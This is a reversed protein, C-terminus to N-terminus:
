VHRIYSKINSVVLHFYAFNASGHFTVNTPVPKSVIVPVNEHSLFKSLDHTGCVPCSNKSNM